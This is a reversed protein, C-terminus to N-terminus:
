EMGAASHPALTQPKVAHSVSRIERATRHLRGLRGFHISETRGEGGRHAETLANGYMGAPNARTALKDKFPLYELTSEEYLRRLEM